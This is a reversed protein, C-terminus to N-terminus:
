GSLAELPPLPWATGGGGGGLTTPRRSPGATTTWPGRPLSPAPARVSPRCNARIETPRRDRISTTESRRRRRVRGSDYRYRHRGGRHHSMDMQRSPSAQTIRIPPPADENTRAVRRSTREFMVVCCIRQRPSSAGTGGGSDEARPALEYCRWNVCIMSSLPHPKWTIAGRSALSTNHFLPCDRSLCGVPHAALPHTSHNQRFFPSTGDVENLCM